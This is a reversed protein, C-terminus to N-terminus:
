KCRSHGSKAWLLCASTRQLLGNNPTFRVHRVHFRLMFFSLTYGLERLHTLGGTSATFHSHGSNPRKCVNWMDCEPTFRVYIQRTHVADCLSPLKRTVKRCQSCYVRSDM